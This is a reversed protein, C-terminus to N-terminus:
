QRVGYKGHPQDELLLNSLKSVWSDRLDYEERGVGNNGWVLVRAVVRPNLQLTIEKHKTGTAMKNNSGSPLLAPVRVWILPILVRQSVM